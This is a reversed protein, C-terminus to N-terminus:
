PRGEEGASRRTVRATLSREAAGPPLAEMAERLRETLRGEDEYPGLIDRLRELIRRRAKYVANRSLGAVEAARAPELEEIATLEFALYDRPEVECRVLDLAAALLGREFAEEWAADPGAEEGAPEPPIGGLTPRAREQPRRRYEAVRNRVVAGLWDRFRGRAPDHRFVDRREFLKLMVDQVLDEATHDACGRRRAYSWLLPGYIGFFEEWAM